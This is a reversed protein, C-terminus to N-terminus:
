PWFVRSRTELRCCHRSSCPCPCPHIRTSGGGRCSWRGYEPLLAVRTDYQVTRTRTNGQVTRVQGTRKRYQVTRTGTGDKNYGNDRTMEDRDGLLMMTQNVGIVVVGDNREGGGAGGGGDLM